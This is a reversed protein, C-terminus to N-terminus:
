PGPRTPKQQGQDDAPLETFYQFMKRAEQSRGQAALIQDPPADSVAVMLDLVHQDLVRVAQEYVRPDINKFLKICRSFASMDANQM